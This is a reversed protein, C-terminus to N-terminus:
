NTTQRDRLIQEIARVANGVGDELRIKQGLDAASQRMVPDSVALRLAGTLRDATLKQRPIPRPGVGLRYVREGWFPQDAFFPVIVAPVGARLGAATTGAGGHHVLAAMRPFLWDHPVSQVRFMNAPLGSAGLEGWGEHLIGRLELRQLADAVLATLELAEAEPMSGFGIYVPPPGSQLFDLLAAPPQWGAAQELFWYGTVHLWDGWDPPKPIVLPSYGYILPSEAYDLSAYVKWPVPPLGLVEQRCRDITKRVIWFFALNSSRFSWWNLWGRFPLWDPFGPSGPSHFYRTPHIPHLYVPLSPIPIASAVHSAVFALVSYLIADSHSSSALLDQMFSRTLPIFRRDLWRIFKFPNGAVKRIDDQLAQRPDAHIPAFDLGEGRVFSEFFPDTLIKVTHGARQLGLGLALYPQVDGRSGITVIDLKM